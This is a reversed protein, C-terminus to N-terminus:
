RGDKVTGSGHCKPCSAKGTGHCKPCDIEKGRTNRVTGSGDCRNCQVLGSGTSSFFNLPNCCKPCEAM